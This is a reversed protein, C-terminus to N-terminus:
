LRIGQIIRSCGNSLFIKLVHCFSYKLWSFNIEDTSSLFHRMSKMHKQMKNFSLYWFLNYSSATNCNANINIKRPHAILLFGLLFAAGSTIGM